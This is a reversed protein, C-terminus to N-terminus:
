IVQGKEKRNGACRRSDSRRRHCEATAPFVILFVIRVRKAENQKTKQSRKCQVFSPIRRPMADCGTGRGNHQMVVAVVSRINLRFRKVELRGLKVM